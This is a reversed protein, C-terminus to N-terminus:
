INAIDFGGIPQPDLPNGKSFIPFIIGDIVVINQNGGQLRISDYPDHTRFDYIKCVCM